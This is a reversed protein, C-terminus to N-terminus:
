RGTTGSNVTWLLWSRSRWHQLLKPVFWDWRRLALGSDNSVSSIVWRIGRTLGCSIHFPSAAVIERKVVAVKVQVELIPVTSSVFVLWTPEANHCRKSVSDELICFICCYSAMKPGCSCLHCHSLVDEPWTYLISHVVVCFAAVWPYM